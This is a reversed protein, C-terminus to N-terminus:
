DCFCESGKTPKCAEKKKADDSGEITPTAKCETKGKLEGCADQDPYKWDYCRPSDPSELPAASVVMFGLAALGAGCAKWVLM